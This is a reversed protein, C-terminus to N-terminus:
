LGLTLQTKTNKNILKQAKAIVEKPIGAMKAVELGYSKDTGGKKLKHLFKLEKKNDNIEIHFNTFGKLENELKILEHFHTAFLTKGGITNVIYEVVARAISLGDLTGTGRGVEDLIILSNKTANRLIKATEIMEVMFTSLGQALADGAGIRTYIADVISIKGSYAPIYSGIQALLQIIAVQRIYTSKGAMNPGTILHCMSDKTLHTENPTFKGTELTEEVVPHRGEIIEINFNQIKQIHPKIYNSEIAKTAFSQLYDIKAIIDSVKQIFKSYENIKSVLSIFIKYELENIKDQANLVIEEKFKLEETIYRESNVLTQKRIYEPPIKDIHIKSIEIYYGFISNFGVKLKKIGTKVREINELKAIWQQSDFISAKLDDLEQNVGDKIMKGTKTLIPPEPKLTDRIQTCLYSITEILKKTSNSDIIWNIKENNKILNLINLSAVLSSKLDLIDRANANELAIKSSLRQIDSVQKLYETINTRVKNNQILEEVSNLRNDIESKKISPFLLLQKLLRAGMPTKTKDIVNFLSLSKTKRTGIKNSEFLELNNITNIDM